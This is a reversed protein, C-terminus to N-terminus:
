QEEGAAPEEPLAAAAHQRMWSELIVQAAADDVPGAGRRRARAEFTSLREDARFVPLGYRGQLQRAFRDAAATAAQRGGDLHLPNGVVLAGPMWQRVLATIREWAPRNNYVPIIALPTATGTLTQGVAVGIRKEGFDFGLLAARRPM